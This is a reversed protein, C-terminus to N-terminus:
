LAKFLYDLLLPEGEINFAKRIMLLLPTVKFPDRSLVPDVKEIRRGFYLTNGVPSFGEEPAYVQARTPWGLRGAIQSVEEEFIEKWSEIKTMKELDSRSVLNTDFRARNIVGHSDNDVWIPLMPNRRLGRVVLRTIDRSEIGIIPFVNVVGHAMIDPHYAPMAHIDEFLAACEKRLDEDRVNHFQGWSQVLEIFEIAMDYARDDNSLVAEHIEKIRRFDERHDTM